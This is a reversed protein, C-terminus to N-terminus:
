AVGRNVVIRLMITASHFCGEWELWKKEISLYLNKLGSDRKCLNSCGEVYIKVIIHKYHWRDISFTDFLRSLWLFKKNTVKM